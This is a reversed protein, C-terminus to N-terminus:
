LRPDLDDLVAALLRQVDDAGKRGSEVLTMSAPQGSAVVAGVDLGDAGGPPALRNSQGRPINGGPKAPAM